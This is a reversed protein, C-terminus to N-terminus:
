TAVTFDPVTTRSCSSAVPSRGPRRSRPGCGWGAYRRGADRGGTLGPRARRRAPRRRLRPRPARHDARRRDRLRRAGLLHRRGLDVDIDVTVTTGDVAPDPTPRFDEHTFTHATYYASSPTTGAAGTATSERLGRRARVPLAAPRSRAGHRRRLLRRHARPLGPRRSPLRYLRRANLGSCRPRSRPPAPRSPPRPPRRGGRPLHRRPAPLRQGVRHPGPRRLAGPRAPHARRGRLQHRVPPRLVGVPAADHRPLLRRLVGGARRPARALVAGLRGSSELFLVRLGPHRELTGFAILQACALMSEFSHRCPTSSSRTSPATRAWPRCSSRAARTCASRCASSRPWTGSRTTPATPCRVASAPTPASSAPWSASSADGGPAARPAAAAPDQLPLM